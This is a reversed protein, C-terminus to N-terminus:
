SKVQLSRKCNEPSLIRLKVHFRNGILCRSISEKSVGMTSLVDTFCIIFTQAGCNCFDYENSLGRKQGHHRVHLFCKGCTFLTTWFKALTWVGTPVVSERSSLFSSSFYFFPFADKGLALSWTKFLSFIKQLLSTCVTARSAM